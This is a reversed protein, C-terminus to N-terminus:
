NGVSFRKIEARHRTSSAVTAEVEADEQRVQHEREDLSRHTEAKEMVDLPLRLRKRFEGRQWVVM